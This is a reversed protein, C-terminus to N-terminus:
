VCVVGQFSGQFVRVKGYAKFPHRAKIVPEQHARLKFGWHVGRGTREKQERNEMAALTTPNGRSGSKSKSKPGTSKKKPNVGQGREREERDSLGGRRTGRMPRSRSRATLTLWRRTPVQSGGGGGGKERKGKDVTGVFRFGLPVRMDAGARVIAEAMRTREPGGKGTIRRLLVERM